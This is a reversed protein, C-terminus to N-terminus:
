QPELASTGSATRYQLTYTWVQCLITYKTWKIGIKTSKPSRAWVASSLINIISENQGLM